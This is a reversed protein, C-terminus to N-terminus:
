DLTSALLGSTRAAAKTQHLALAVRKASTSDRPTAASKQIDGMGVWEYCV